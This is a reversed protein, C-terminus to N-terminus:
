AACLTGKAAMVDEGWIEHTKNEHTRRAQYVTVPMKLRAVGKQRPDSKRNQRQQPRTRSKKDKM